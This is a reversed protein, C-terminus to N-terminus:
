AGRRLHNALYKGFLRQVDGTPLASDEVDEGHSLRDRVSKLERFAAVEDQAQAEDLYVSLVAFKDALNYKDAMVKGVRELYAHLGPSQKVARLEAALLQQYVPFLKGVLIELASWAAIFARYNDTGRELSHAYLRMVRELAGAKLALGIYDSIRTREDQTLRRSVYASANGFEASASHVVRGDDMTLYSGEALRRFEVPEERGLRLGTLVASVQPLVRSKLLKREYADFCLVFGEIERAHAPIQAETEGQVEVVLVPDNGMAGRQGREVEATEVALVEPFDDAVPKGIMGRLMMSMLATHRNLLRLHQEVNSTLTVRVASAASGLLVVDAEGLQHSLGQVCHASLFTFRM